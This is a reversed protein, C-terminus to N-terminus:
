ARNLLAAVVSRQEHVLVNFTRCAAPTTMIELGIAREAFAAMLAVDPLRMEAGTGFLVIEPELALVAAFDDLGLADPDDHVQWAATAGPSVILSGRHWSEGVLIRGDEFARIVNTQTSDRTLQL